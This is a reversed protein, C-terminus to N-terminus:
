STEGLPRSIAREISALLTMLDDEDMSHRGEYRERIYRLVAAAGHLTQPTTEVLRELADGELNSFRTEARYAAALRKNATRKAGRSAHWATKEAVALDDLVAIFEGYARVHAEIAAFIPDPAIVAPIAAPTAAPAAIVTPPLVVAPVAAAAGSLLTRRTISDHRAQAM